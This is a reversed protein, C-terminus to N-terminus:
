MNFGINNCDKLELLFLISHSWIPYCTKVLKGLKQAAVNEWKSCLSGPFSWGVSKINHVYWLWGFVTVSQVYGHNDLYMFVPAYWLLFVKVSHVYLLWSLGFVNVRAWIMIVWVSKCQTCVMGANIRSKDAAEEIGDRWHQQQMIHKHATFRFTLALAQWDLTLRHSATDHSLM